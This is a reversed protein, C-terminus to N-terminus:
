EKSELFNSVVLKRDTKERVERQYADDNDASSFLEEELEELDSKRSM